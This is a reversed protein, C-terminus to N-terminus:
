AYHERYWAVAKEVGERFQVKPAWGLARLKATDLLAREKGDPKSTDFVIEGKFGTVDKIIEATERISFYRGSSVNYAGVADENELLCLFANAIDNVHTYERRLKGTGWVVVENLGDRVADSFRKVLASFVPLRNPDNYSYEIGYLHTPVVSVCRLVKQENVTRCVENGFMKPLAYCRQSKNAVGGPALSLESIRRQQSMSFEEIEDPYSAESSTFLLKKVGTLLCAGVTNIIILNNGLL